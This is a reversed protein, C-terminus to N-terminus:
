NMLLTNYYERHTAKMREVEQQLIKTVITAKDGDSIIPHDIKDYWIGCLLLHNVIHSKLITSEEFIELCREMIRLDSMTRLCERFEEARKRGEEGSYWPLTLPNWWNGSKTASNLYDRIANDVARSFRRQRPLSAM